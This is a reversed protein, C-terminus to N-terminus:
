WGDAVHGHSRLTEDYCEGEGCGAKQPARFVTDVTKSFFQAGDAYAPLSSPATYDLGPVATLRPLMSLPAQIAHIQRSM